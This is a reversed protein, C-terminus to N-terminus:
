VVLTNVSLIGMLIGMIIFAILGGMVLILAPELLVLLRKIRAEVEDENIEALDLLMTDLSGSEEGVRVMQRAVPPFVRQDMVASLRDGRKIAPAITSLSARIISNAVTGVAIDTAKLLSVGNHLLTGLTRAFRATEYALLLQGIVPTKISRLHLWQMGADSRLWRSIWYWGAGLGFLMLLWWDAVWNGLGVIIQTLLPLADGMDDFLAEFEPVVFGLMIFVSIAAVVALIAPYIMASVVAGKIAKSKELYESLEALVESLRGSAEGSRIMNIYLAGFLAENAALSVSLSKGGKLSALLDAFFTQLAEGSASDLQVKIARDLPIGAKLLVSLESTFRLVDEADLKTGRRRRVAPRRLGDLLAELVEPEVDTARPTTAAGSSVRIRSDAKLSLPILHRARLQRQADPLDIASISGSEPKGRSDTAQFIFEPM